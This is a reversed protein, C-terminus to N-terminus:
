PKDALVLRIAEATPQSSVINMGRQIGEAIKLPTWGKKNPQNWIGASAGKAALLRVVSPVHKYAAGHM